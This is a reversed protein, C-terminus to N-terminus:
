AEPFSEHVHFPFSLYEKKQICRDRGRDHQGSAGFGIRILRRGRVTSPEIGDDGIGSWEIAVTRLLAVAGIHFQLFISQHRQNARRETIAFHFQGGALLSVDRTVIDPRRRGCKDGGRSRRWRM